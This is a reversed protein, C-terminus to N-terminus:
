DCMVDLLTTFLDFELCCGFFVFFASFKWYDRGGFADNAAIDDTFFAAMYENAEDLGEVIDNGSLLSIETWCLEKWFTLGESSLQLNPNEWQSICEGYRVNAGHSLDGAFSACKTVGDSCDGSSGSSSDSSSSDSAQITWASLSVLLSFVFFLM